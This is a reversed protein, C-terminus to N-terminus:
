RVLTKHKKGPIRPSPVHRKSPQRMSSVTLSIGARKAPEIKNGPALELELTAIEDWEEDTREREPVALLERLRCRPDVDQKTCTPANMPSDM